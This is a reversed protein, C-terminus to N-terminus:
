ARKRYETEAKHAADAVLDDALAVAQKQTLAVKLIVGDNQVTLISQGGFGGHEVEVKM